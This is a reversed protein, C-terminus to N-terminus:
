QAAALRALRERARAILVRDYEHLPESKPARKEGGTHLRAYEELLPPLDDYDAGDWVEFPLRHLVICVQHM